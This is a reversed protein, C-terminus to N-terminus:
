SSWLLYLSDTHVQVVDFGVSPRVFGQVPDCEARPSRTPCLQRLHKRSRLQYAELSFVDNLGLLVENSTRFNRTVCVACNRPRLLALTARNAQANKVNPTALLLYNRNDRALILFCAVVPSELGRKAVLRPSYTL